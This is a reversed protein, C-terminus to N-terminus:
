STLLKRDFEFVQSSGNDVTTRQRRLENANRSEMAAIRRLVALRPFSFRWFLGTKGASRIISTLLLATTAVLLAKFFELAQNSTKILNIFGPAVLMGTTISVVLIGFGINEEITDPEDFREKYSPPKTSILKLYPVVSFIRNLWTVISAVGVSTILTLRIGINSLKSFDGGIMESFFHISQKEHLLKSPARSKREISLFLNATLSGSHYITIWAVKAIMYEYFQKHPFRLNSPGAAPDPVFIGATAIENSVRELRDTKREYRLKEEFNRIKQVIDARAGEKQYIKLADEYVQSIVADFDSRTITNPSGMDAMKWVVAQTFLERVEVPLLLYSAGLPAGLDRRDKELEDEKRQYIARLYLELLIASTLSQSKGQLEEVTHWITAVVPLMSPRSVIELFPPHATTAATIAKGLCEGFGNAVQEIEDNTLRDLEWLQTFANGAAGRLTDARLTRNKENEDIFFNPRGTFILKSGPFAMRWLANFHEHRDYARGANRLEDFGEFIVIAEGAKILNYLQKPQLGYRSAWSSLFGVPDVESPSQGRLEILLPVRENSAKDALYRRAWQVCFELMATSKGQGYEGTIALHRRTIDQLWDSLIKCLPQRDASNSAKVHASVFTDKLTAVTGGLTEKEFRNILARAYNALRLGRRLLASQSWFECEFNALDITRGQAMEGNQFLAYFKTKPNIAGGSVLRDVKKELESVTPEDEFILLIIPQPESQHSDGIFMHGIWGDYRDRWGKTPIEVESFAAQFLDRSLLYWDPTSPPEPLNQQWNIAVDDVLPDPKLLILRKAETLALLSISHDQGQKVLDAVSLTVPGEWNLIVTTAFRYILWMVVLSSSVALIALFWGDLTLPPSSFGFHSAFPLSITIPQPPSSILKLLAMAYSALAWVVALAFRSKSASLQHRLWLAYGVALVFSIVLIVTGWHDAIWILM